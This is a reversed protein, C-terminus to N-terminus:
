TYEGSRPLTRPDKPRQQEEQRQSIQVAIPQKTPNTRQDTGTKQKSARNKEPVPPMPFDKVLSRTRQTKPLESSKSPITTPNTTKTSSPPQVLKKRQRENTVGNREPTIPSLAKRKGAPVNQRETQPNRPMTARANEGSPGARPIRTRRPSLPTPLEMEQYPVRRTSLEMEQNPVRRTSNQQRRRKAADAYSQVADPYRKKVIKRAEQFSIKDKTVITIIEQEIQYMPCMPDSASHDSHCNRCKPRRECQEDPTTHTVEACNQCISNTSRCHKGVHGFGQCNFCRRPRPVYLRVDLKELGARISEPPQISNFTLLYRSGNYRKNPRSPLKKVDTVQAHHLHDCIEECTYKDWKRALVTGQSSNLKRHPTAKVQINGISKIKEINCSQEHSKSKLLMSGNRLVKFTEPEGKCSEVLDDYAKFSCADHLTKNEVTSELIFFRNHTPVDPKNNLDIKRWHKKSQNKRGHTHGPSWFGDTSGKANVRIEKQNTERLAGVSPASAQRPNRPESLSLLAATPTTRPPTTPAPGGTAGYSYNLNIIDM